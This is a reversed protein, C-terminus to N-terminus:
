PVGFLHCILNYSNWSYTFRLQLFTKPSLRLTGPESLLSNSEYLFCLFPFFSLASRAKDHQEACQDLLINLTLDLLQIMKTEASNVVCESVDIFVTTYRLLVSYIVCVLPLKQEFPDNRLGM